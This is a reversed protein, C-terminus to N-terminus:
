VPPAGLKGEGGPGKGRPGFYVHIDHYLHHSVEEYLKRSARLIALTNKGSRPGRTRLHKGKYPPILDYICLRLEPPLRSLTGLGPNFPPDVPIMPVTLIPLERPATPMTSTSPTSPMTLTTPPALTPPMPLCDSTAPNLRLDSIRTTRITPTASTTLPGHTQGM